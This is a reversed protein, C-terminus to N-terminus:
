DAIKAFCVVGSTVPKFLLLCKNKSRHTGTTTPQDPNPKNPFDAELMSGDLSPEKMCILTLDKRCAKELVWPSVIIARWLSTKGNGQCPELTLGKGAETQMVNTLMGNALDHRIVM